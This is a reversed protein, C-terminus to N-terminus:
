TTVAITRGGGIKVLQKILAPDCSMSAALEAQYEEGAVDKPETEGGEEDVGPLMDKQIAEWVALEAAGM